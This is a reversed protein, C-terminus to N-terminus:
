CKRSALLGGYKSKTEKTTTNGSKTTRTTRNNLGSKKRYWDDAFDKADDPDGGQAIYQAKVAEITRSDTSDGHQADLQRLFTAQAEPSKFEPRGRKDTMFYPSTKNQWQRFSEREERQRGTDAYQQGLANLSNRYQQDAIVSKDYLRTGREREQQLRQNDLNAILESYRNGTQTNRNSVEGAAQISRRLLEGQANNVSTRGAKTDGSYMANSLVNTNEALVNRIPQDSELLLQPKVVQVAPEWPSYKKTNMAKMGLAIDEMADASLGQYRIGSKRDKPLKPTYPPVNTMPPQYPSPANPPNGITIPAIGQQMNAPTPMSPTEHPNQWANVDMYPKNPSLTRIGGLGEPMGTGPSVPYGPDVGREWQQVGTWNKGYQQEIEPTYGIGAAIDSDYPINDRGNGREKIIRAAEERPYGKFKNGANYAVNVPVSGYPTIESDQGGNAYIPMYGGTRMAPQQPTSPIGMSQKQLEQVQKLSELKKLNNAYMMEATKRALPDTDPNEMQSKWDNLPYKKALKGPTSPKTADFMSLINPDKIRLKKTDSYVFSNDPVSLPTGGESHRKGGVGMSEPAGDADFDGVVHEGKEMEVMQPDGEVFVWDPSDIYKRYKEM